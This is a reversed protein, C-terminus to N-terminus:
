PFTVTDHSSCSMATTLIYLWELVLHSVIILRNSMSQLQNNWLCIRYIIYNTVMLALTVSPMVKVVDSCVCHDQDASLKTIRYHSSCPWRICVRHSHPSKLHPSVSDDKDLGTVQWSGDDCISVSTHIVFWKGARITENLQSKMTLPVSFSLFSAKFWHKYAM